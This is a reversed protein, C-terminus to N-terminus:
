IPQVLTLLPRPIAPVFGARRYRRWSYSQSAVTILVAAGSAGVNLLTPFFLLNGLSFGVYAFTRSAELCRFQTLDSWGREPAQEVMWALMGRPVGQFLVLVWLRALVLTVRLPFDLTPESWYSLLIFPATVWWSGIAYIIMHCLLRPWGRRAAARGRLAAFIWSSVVLAVFANRPATPIQTRALRRAGWWSSLAFSCGRAICTLPLGVSSPEIVDLVNARWEELQEARLVHPLRRAALRLIFLPLRELRTTAETRLLGGGVLMLLASAAGILWTGSM